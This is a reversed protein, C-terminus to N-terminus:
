GSSVHCDCSCDFVSCIDYTRSVKYAEDELEGYMNTYKKSVKVEEVERPPSEGGVGNTRVVDVHGKVKMSAREVLMSDIHSKQMKLEELLSSLREVVSQDAPSQRFRALLREGESSVTQYATELKEKSQEAKDLQETSLLAEFQQCHAQFQHHTYCFNM